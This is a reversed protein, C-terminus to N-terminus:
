SKESHGNVGAAKQELLNIDIKSAAISAAHQKMNLNSPTPGAADATM